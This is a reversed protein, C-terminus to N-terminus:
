TSKKVDTSLLSIMFQITRLVMRKGFDKPFLSEPRSERFSISSNNACKSIRENWTNVWVDFDSDDDEDEDKSINLLGLDDLETAIDDFDKFGILYLLAALYTKGNNILSHYMRMNNPNNFFLIELAETLRDDPFTIPDVEPTKLPNQNYIMNMEVLRNYYTNLRKLSERINTAITLKPDDTSCKDSTIYNFDSRKNDSSTRVTIKM